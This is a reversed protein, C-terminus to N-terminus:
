AFALVALSVAALVVALVLVSKWHRLVLRSVAWLAGVALVGCAVGAYFLTPNLFQTFIKM